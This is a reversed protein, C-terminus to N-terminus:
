KRRVKKIIVNGDKNVGDIIRRFLINKFSRINNIREKSINLKFIQKVNEAIFDKDKKFLPNMQIIIDKALRIEKTTPNKNWILRIPLEDRELEYLVLKNFTEKSLM